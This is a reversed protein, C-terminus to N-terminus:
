SAALLVFMYIYISGLANHLLSLIGGKVHTRAISRTSSAIRDGIETQRSTANRQANEIESQSGFYCNSVYTVAHYLVVLTTYLCVLTPM